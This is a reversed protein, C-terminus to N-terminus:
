SGACPDLAKKSAPHCARSDARANRGIMSARNGSSVEAACNQQATADTNSQVVNTHHQPRDRHGTVTRHEEDLALVALSEVEEVIGRAHFGSSFVMGSSRFRPSGM